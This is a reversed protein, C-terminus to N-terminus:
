GLPDLLEGVVDLPEADQEALMADVRLVLWGSRFGPPAECGSGPDQLRWRPLVCVMASPRGCHESIVQEHANTCTWSRFRRTRGLRSGLNSDQQPRKSAENSTGSTGQGPTESVARNVAESVGHRRIGESSPNQPGYAAWTM